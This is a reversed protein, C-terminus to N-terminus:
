SSRKCDPMKINEDGEDTFTLSKRKASVGTTLSSNELADTTRQMRIPSLVPSVISNSLKFRGSDLGKM